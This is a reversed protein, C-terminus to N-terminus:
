ESSTTVRKRSSSLAPSRAWSAATRVKRVAPLATIVEPAVTTTPKAASSSIGSVSVRLTPIAPNTTTAIATSRDVVRSGASSASSPRLM